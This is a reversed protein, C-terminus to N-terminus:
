SIYLIQLPNIIGKPVPVYMRKAIRSHEIEPVKPYLLNGLGEVTRAILVSNPKMKPIIHALIKEKQSPNRGVMAGLVVTDFDAFDKYKQVSKKIHQVQRNEKTFFSKSMSIAEPSYDLVSVSLKKSYLYASLPLPGSGIFLVKKGQLIDMEIRTLKLYNKLYPFMKIDKKAYAKELEYEGCAAIKQIKKYIRQLRVDTHAIEAVDKKTEEIIQVLRNFLANVNKGPKLSRIKSLKTYISLVEIVISDVKKQQQIPTHAM